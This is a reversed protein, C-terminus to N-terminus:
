SLCPMNHTVYREEIREIAPGCHDLKAFRILQLGLDGATSVVELVYAMVNERPGLLATAAASWDVSKKATYISPNFDTGQKFNKPWRNCCLLKLQQADPIEVNISNRM